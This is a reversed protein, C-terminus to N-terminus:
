SHTIGRIINDMAKNGVGETRGEKNKGTITNHIIVVPPWIVLDEQNAAAEEAPLLQYSKSNDPSKSFSWGMLICLAKHLGLHDVLLDGHDSHYTHMILSHMDAFEKSSRYKCTMMSM